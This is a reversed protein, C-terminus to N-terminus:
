TGAPNAYLDCAVAQDGELVDSGKVIGRAVAASVIHPQQTDDVNGDGSKPCPLYM